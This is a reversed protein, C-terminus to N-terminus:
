EYNKWIKKVIWPSLRIGVFFWILWFFAFIILDDKPIFLIIPTAILSWIIIVFALRKGGKDCMEEVDDDLNKM